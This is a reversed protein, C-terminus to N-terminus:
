AYCCAEHLASTHSNVESQKVGVSGHGFIVLVVENSWDGIV